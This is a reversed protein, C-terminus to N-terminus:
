LAQKATVRLDAVGQGAAPSATQVLWQLHAHRFHAKVAEKLGAMLDGTEKLTEPVYIAHIGHM